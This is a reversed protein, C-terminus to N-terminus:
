ETGEDAWYWVTVVGINNDASHSITILRDRGLGSAFRAADEFLRDWTQFSSRFTEFRVQV